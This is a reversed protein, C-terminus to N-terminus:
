RKGAGLQQKLSKVKDEVQRDKGACLRLVRNLEDENRIEFAADAAMSLQRFCLCLLRHMLFDVIQTGVLDLM